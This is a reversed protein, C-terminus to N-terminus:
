SLVASGQRVISPGHGTAQVTLQAPLQEKMAAVHSIVGVTRGGQRLEDLTRMALELTDDDLSGFGEDIFLTDLRVGGARATVVEALGLALALSALFTEGGSLSQAPRAQGTHADMIQLGLGSSAGRAALADSHQLRYRGSSMDSLRLNAAEVIEELEAALVFSELTMRHTNPARGAVTDALRAIVAHDAALGASKEHGATARAVLEAVRAATQSAAAAADVATSWRERANALRAAAAEVDVLDEPEGALELELDRLRDRETRLAVEHDRIAEELETRQASTRLAATAEATDDFGSAAIRRDRDEASREATARAAEAAVLAGALDSALTRRREADAIRGSVSEFPGRADDVARRAAQADATVAALRLRLATVEAAVAEREIRAADEAATLAEREATLRDRDRVATAARDVAAEAADRGAELSEVAAGGARAAAAAHAERASRAREAAQLEATAALDRETEAAAIQEDSVGDDAAPAPAPHELSGCVACPEGDVLAAALEGAHGALRRRLAETVLRRAGDHRESAALYAAEADRLGSALRVAERAASLREAVADRQTVAGDIGGAAAQAAALETELQALRAPFAARVVDLEVLLQDFEAIRATGAALEDSMADLERERVRATKWVAIDGTLEDVVAGLAAVDSAEAGDAVSQWGELARAVDALAADAVAAAATAADISTRLGEAELARALTERERRILPEAEELTALALRSRVRLEQKERLARTARHAGEAAAHVADAEDRERVLTEVRYDARQVGVAATELRAAVDPAAATVAEAAGAAGSLEASALVREAEDLLLIVGDGAASLEREADRRRQDLAVQYAEYTRTGFLRRLLRQREDNKALLFEAFRNQALLIVQLFQQQSLGLIEDLERAVDVPRAAIGTWQDGLLEDLQARHPETTMGTGRQKPREYEPSRTVRFRRGGASFEVSVSTPDEPACHDSRLRREAGDYRPVGGYLAFSVGDLVSSKGAGTRGAILFIGDDAFADFDVVQRERFPGFGELELSHLRM